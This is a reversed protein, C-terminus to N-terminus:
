IGPKRGEENRPMLSVKDFYIELIRIILIDQSEGKGLRRRMGNLNILSVKDIKFNWISFIPSDRPSNFIRNGDRRM